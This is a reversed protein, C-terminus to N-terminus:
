DGLTGPGYIKPSLIASPDGFLISSVVATLSIAIVVVVLGILSLYIKQWAKEIVEPNDSSSIFQIGALVLNILGYLGAAITIFKIINSIFGVLGGGPTNIDGYSSFPGSLPNQVNGFIDGM